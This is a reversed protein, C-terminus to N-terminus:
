KAEGGADDMFTAFFSAPDSFLRAHTVCFDLGQDWWRFQELFEVQRETFRRRIFRAPVGAVVSYPEVDTTVVAGAAVIAGNGVNVGDLIIANNGIWVDNGITVLKSEIVQGQVAIKISGSASASYFGPYTSIMGTPHVGLGIQVNPAISCFKGVVCNKIVSNGGIYSFSGIRSDAIICGDYLSIEDGFVCSGGISSVGYFKVNPYKQINRPARLIVALLRRGFRVINEAKYM